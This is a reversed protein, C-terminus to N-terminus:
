IKERRRPPKNVRWEGRVRAGQRKRRDGAGGGLGCDGGTGGGSDMGAGGVGGHNGFLEALPARMAWAALAVAYALYNNRAFFVCFAALAAIGVLAMGYQLAFEGPTRM